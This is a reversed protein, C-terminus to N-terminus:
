ISIIKQIEDKLTDLILNEKCRFPEGVLDFSPFENDFQVIDKILIIEWFGDDYGFTFPGRVVSAGYGNSFSYIKQKSKLYKKMQEQLFLHDLVLIETLMEEDSTSQYPAMKGEWILEINM